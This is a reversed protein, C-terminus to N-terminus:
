FIKKIKSWDYGLDNFVRDKIIWHSYRMTPNSPDQKIEYVRGNRIDNNSIPNWYRVLSPTYPQWKESSYGVGTYVYYEELKHSTTPYPHYKIVECNLGLDGCWNSDVVDLSSVTGDDSNGNTIKVVVATHDMGGASTTDFIVDGPQAFEIGRAHRSVNYKALEDGSITTKTGYRDRVEVKTVTGELYNGGDDPIKLVTRHNTYSYVPIGKENTGIQTKIFIVDGQEVKNITKVDSESITNIMSSYSTFM